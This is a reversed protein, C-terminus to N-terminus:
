ALTRVCQFYHFLSTTSFVFCYWRCKDIETSLLSHNNKQIFFFFFTELSSHFIITTHKKKKETKKEYTKNAFLYFYTYTLKIKKHVDSSLTSPRYLIMQLNRFM